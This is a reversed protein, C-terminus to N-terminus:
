ALARPAPLGDPLTGTELWARLTPKVVKGMANRPFQEVVYWEVPAKYRALQASCEAALEAHSIQAGADGVAPLVFGVVEEGLRAHDRGVVAVEAVSQLGEVAREVEAPYVNAGGRIILDSRRDLVWLNGDADFRGVDGTHLVGGRLASATAEPRDWYGLMTSYCGAFHGVATPGVCIEGDDGVPVQADDADRITVEVQEHAAGSSGVPGISAASAGGTVSTPAETLGYGFGFDSGFRERYRERLGEPCKAGGVGLHTLSAIDAPDIDPRTLLDYVTPPTSYMRQVGFEAIWGAVGAADIRDMPVITGGSLLTQVTSLVQMNLITLPLCVGQVLASPERRMMVAGPLLMNHQSHVVGKPTGTTGSTYAIAAPAFPDVEVAPRDAADADRWWAGPDAADVAIVAVDPGVWGAAITDATSVLLSADSDQLLFRKEPTALHTNVGVWIAGLRMCALFAVVVDGTNPLSVGVRDLPRVGRAHMTAAARDVAVQLEAYTYSARRDAVATRSGYTAAAHDVLDAVSRPVDPIPRPENRVLGHLGVFEHDIM